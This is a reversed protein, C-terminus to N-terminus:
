DEVHTLVKQNSVLQRLWFGLRGFNLITFMTSLTLIGFLTLHTALGLYTILGLAEWYSSALFAALLTISAYGMVTMQKTKCYIYIAYLWMTSLLVQIPKALALPTTADGPAVASAALPYYTNIILTVQKLGLLSLAVYNSIEYIWLSM